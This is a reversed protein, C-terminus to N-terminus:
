TSSDAGWAKAALEPYHLRFYLITGDNTVTDLTFWHNKRKYIALDPAKDATAKEVVSQIYYDHSGMMQGWARIAEYAM